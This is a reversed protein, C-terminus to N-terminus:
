APEADFRRIVIEDIAVRDPLSALFVVSEAVEEPKMWERRDVEPRAEAILRTDIGGPCICCVRVRYPRMEHALVKTLGVLGHKSACYAGQQPYPKKGANSAVNVICGRRREMMGPLVAKICVFPARLNTEVIHDFDQLSTEALPAVRFAGANNILIEVPGLTKETRALAEAVQEPRTVDCVAALSPVGREGALRATEDVERRTRAWCAVLAGERAFALTIARGLGRGAGTVVAVRGALVGSAV